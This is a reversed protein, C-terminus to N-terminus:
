LYITIIGDLLALVTKGRGAKMVLISIKKGDPKDLLLVLILPLLILLYYYHHLFTVCAVKSSILWDFIFFWLVLFVRLSLLIMRGGTVTMTLVAAQRVLSQIPQRIMIRTQIVFSLLVLGRIGWWSPTISSKDLFVLLLIVYVQALNFVISTTLFNM